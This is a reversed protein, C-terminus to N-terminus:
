PVGVISKVLIAEKKRKVTGVASSNSEQNYGALLKKLIKVERLLSLRDKKDDDMEVGVRKALEDSIDDFMEEVSPRQEPLRFVARDALIAINPWKKKFYKSTWGEKFNRLEMRRECETTWPDNFLEFLIIGLSYIDAKENYPTSGDKQEPAAYTLTGVGETVCPLDTSLGFDGISAKEVKEEDSIKMKLFVNSPKIDRHLITPENRHLHAVGALIDHFIRLSEVQDVVNREKLYEQLNMEFLEMQIILVQEPIEMPSAPSSDLYSDTESAVILSGRWVAQRLTPTFPENWVSMYRCINPHPFLRAHLQPELLATDSVKSSLPIIKVAYEQQDITDYVKWVCGFAGKGLEYLLKFQKLLRSNEADKEIRNASDVFSSRAPIHSDCQANEWAYGWNENDDDGDSECVIGCAQHEIEQKKTSWDSLVPPPDIKCRKVPFEEQSLCAEKVVRELSPNHDFTKHNVHQNKQIQRKVEGFSAVIAPSFVGGNINKAQDVQHLGEDQQFSNQTLKGNVLSLNTLSNGLGHNIVKWAKVVRM